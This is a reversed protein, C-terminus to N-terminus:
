YTLTVIISDSYTGAPIAQNGPIRGYVTYNRISGM